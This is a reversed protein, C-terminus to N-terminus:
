GDRNILLYCVKKLTKELRFTAIFQIGHVLSPVHRIFLNLLQMYGNKTVAPQASDRGIITTEFDDLYNKIFSDHYKEYMAPMISGINKNIVDNRHYGLCASAGLNINTIM